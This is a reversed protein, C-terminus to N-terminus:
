NRMTTLVGQSRHILFAHGSSISLQLHIATRAHTSSPGPQALTQRTPSTPSHFCRYSNKSFTNSLKKRLQCLTNRGEQVKSSSRRRELRGGRREPAFEMAEEVTISADTKPEVYRPHEPQPRQHHNGGVDCRPRRRRREGYERYWGHIRAVHEPLLENQARGVKGELRRPHPGQEQPGKERQRFVLVCAALGTGYFLNPQPRHRSRAPGNPSDEAPHAKRAWASCPATPCVVAVAVTAPAM